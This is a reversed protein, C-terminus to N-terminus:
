LDLLNYEFYNCDLMVFHYRYRVFEKTDVEDKYRARNVVKRDYEWTLRFGPM